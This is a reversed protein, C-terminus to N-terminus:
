KCALFVKELVEQINSSLAPNESNDFIIDSATIVSSKSIVKTGMKVCIYMDPELDFGDNISDFTWTIVTGNRTFHVNEQYAIGNIEIVIADKIDNSKITQLTITNGALQPNIETFSKVLGDVQELNITDIYKAKIKSM